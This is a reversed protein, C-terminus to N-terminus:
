ESGLLYAYIGSTVGLAVFGAPPFILGAGVSTCLVFLVMLFHAANERTMFRGITSLKTAGAFDFKKKEQM